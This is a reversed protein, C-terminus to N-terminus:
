EAEVGARVQASVQYADAGEVADWTVTAEREGTMTVQVNEPVGIEPEPEGETGATYHAAIRTPSLATRYFAVEDVVGIADPADRFGGIQFPPSGSSYRSSLTDSAVSEGDIYLTITGGSTPSSGEMVGVAHHIEGDNYNSAPSAIEVASGNSEYVGFEVVGTDDLKLSFRKSSGSEDRNVLEIDNVLSDGKFWAEATYNNSDDGSSQGVEIYGDNDFEIATDADGALLGTVNQTPTGSISGHRGNGSSDQPAGSSEGLRLYWAPSDALVEDAYAM